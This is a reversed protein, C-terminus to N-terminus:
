DPTQELAALLRADLDPYRKEIRHAIWLPNRVRFSLAGFLPIALLALAILGLLVLGPFTHSHSRTWIFIGLGVVALALWTLALATSFYLRRYRDSIQSLEHLLRKDNNM